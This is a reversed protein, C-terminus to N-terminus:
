SLIGYVSHSIFLLFTNRVALPQRTWPSPVPPLNLPRYLECIVGERQTGVHHFPCPLEAPDRILVSIGNM